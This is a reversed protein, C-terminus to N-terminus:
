GLIMLNMGIGFQNLVLTATLLSLPIATASIVATRANFLFAFLISIVLVSGILIDQQVGDIATEIFNAPRFLGEHLTVGQQTLSPKIDKLARELTQTVGHVNAGLQGQVSLYVGPEGNIAASSISPAAGEVVEAVDYLRITRGLRRILTTNALQAPTLAQGQTNLIIRQNANQIYGAGHVGTALTAANVVDQVNLQYLKLKQPDIKIQFQRVQGGFVNVDAVGQIALLHPTIQWDVITRLQMLSLTKSTVGIGMVTSASSTMPTINPTIGVPLQNGLMNLHEAVVQRNRYPDTNDNFVATVISLGPISQSRLSKIGIAGAISNEIPQTVLKEVLSASLGPSETQIIVQTPAFEPFVDLHSQTLSYSGYVVVLLALGIMVGYYRISFQILNRM